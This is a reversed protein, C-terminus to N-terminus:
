LLILPREESVTQEPYIKAWKKTSKAKPIKVNCTQMYSTSQLEGYRKVVEQFNRFHFDETEDSGIALLYIRYANGYRGDTFQYISDRDERIGQIVRGINNLPDILTKGVLHYYENNGYHYSM